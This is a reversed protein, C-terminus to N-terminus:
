IKAKLRSLGARMLAGPTFKQATELVDLVEQSIIPDLLTEYYRPAVFYNALQTRFMIAPASAFCARLVIRKGDKLHLVPATFVMGPITGIDGLWDIDWASDEFHDFEAYPIHRKRFFGKYVFGQKTASLGLRFSQFFLWAFFMLLVAVAIRDESTMEESELVLGLITFVLGVSGVVFLSTKFWSTPKFANLIRKHKAYDFDM